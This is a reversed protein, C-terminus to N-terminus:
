RRDRAPVIELQVVGNRWNAPHVPVSVIAPSQLTGRGRADVADQISAAAQPWHADRRFPFNGWQGLEHVAITALLSCGIVTNAGGLRFLRYLLLAWILVAIAGPLYAYRMQWLPDGSQRMIQLIAYSRSVAIGAFTLVACAFGLLLLMAANDDGLGNVGIPRGRRWLALM